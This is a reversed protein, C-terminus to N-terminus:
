VRLGLRDKVPFAALEEGSGKWIRLMAVRRFVLFAAFELPKRSSCPKPILTQLNPGEDQSDEPDLNFTTAHPSAIESPATRHRLNM